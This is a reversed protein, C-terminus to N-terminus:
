EDHADDNVSITVCDVLLAYHSHARYSPRRVASVRM